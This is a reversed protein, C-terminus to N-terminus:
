NKSAMKMNSEYTDQDTIFHINQTHIGEKEMLKMLGLLFKNIASTYYNPDIKAM